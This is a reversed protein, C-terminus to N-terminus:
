QKLIKLVDHQIRKLKHKTPHMKVQRNQLDYNILGDVIDVWKKVGGVYKRNIGKFFIAKSEWWITPHDLTSMYVKVTM